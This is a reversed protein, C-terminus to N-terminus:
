IQTRLIDDSIEFSCVYFVIQVISLTRSSMKHGGCSVVAAATIAFFVNM